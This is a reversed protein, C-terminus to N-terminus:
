RERNNGSYRCLFDIENAVGGEVFIHAEGIYIYTDASNGIRNLVRLM